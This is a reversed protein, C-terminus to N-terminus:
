RVKPVYCAHKAAGTTPRGREYKSQNGFYLYIPWVSVNSFSTCNMSDSAAMLSLLVVEMRRGFKDVRHSHAKRVKIHEKIWADSGYLEGHLREPPASDNPKWFLKFPTYHFRSGNEETVAERMLEVLPRYMVNNVEFVPADCEKQRVGEFPLSLKVSASVWGEPLLTLDKDIRQGETSANYNKLHERSFDPHQLVDHVLNNMGANSTVPTEERWKGLLFQTANPFPHYPNADSAASAEQSDLKSQCIPPTPGLSDISDGYLVGACTSHVTNLEDPDHSPTHPYVRYVGYNDMKTQFEEEDDDGSSNGSDTASRQPIPSPQPQLQPKPKPQRATPNPIHALPTKGTPAMDDFSKPM